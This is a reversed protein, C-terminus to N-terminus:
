VVPSCYGFCCSVPVFVPVYVLLVSNAWFYPWVGVVMQDKVFSVFVLLSSSERNLLHHQPLQSGIHLVSFNSGKRVDFVFILELHILSKFTFGLVIFIRSSLRPFVMRSVPVALSKM